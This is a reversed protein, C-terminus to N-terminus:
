AEAKLLGGQNSTTGEKMLMGREGQKSATGEKMLMGREISELLSPAAKAQAAKKAEAEKAAVKAKEANIRATAIIPSRAL